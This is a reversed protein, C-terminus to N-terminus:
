GTGCREHVRVDIPDTGDRLLAVADHTETVIEVTGPGDVRGAIEACLAALSAPGSAIANSVTAAALVVEDTGGIVEPSLRERRHDARVVVATDIAIVRGRESTFMPYTSIPFGDAAHPWVAPAAVVVGVLVTVLWRTRNTM